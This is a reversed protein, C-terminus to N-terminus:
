GTTERRILVPTIDKHVIPLTELDPSEKKLEMQDILLSMAESAIQDIQQAVTSIPIIAEEAIPSDDFGVIQWDEPLKGYERVLINLLVNAFTDNACFIGKKRDPYKDKIYVFFEYMHKSMASHEPLIKRQLVEHDKGLRVCEENFGVIRRYSPARRSVYTNVHILVDCGNEALLQVAEQAGVYNDSRVGSMHVDEREIGVVPIGYEAFESSPIVHSMVILGEINYAMLEEVYRREDEANGTGAFVLFKYGNEEYTHLLRKLVESYYRYYLNPLLVGIFETRGTALVRAIKDEHYDLAELAKAITEQNKSAVSEPDNFYRSITTKSLNTYDAIDSFTVKKKGMSTLYPQLTTSGGSVSGGNRQMNYM